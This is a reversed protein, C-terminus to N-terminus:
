LFKVKRGLPLDFEHGCNGCRILPLAGGTEEKHPRQRVELKGDVLGVVPHERVLFQVLTFGKALRGARRAEWACKPCTLRPTAAAM